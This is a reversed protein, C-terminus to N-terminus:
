GDSGEPNEGLGVLLGEERGVPCGVDCGEDRGVWLGESPTEFRGVPCGVEWGDFYTGNAALTLVGPTPVRDVWIAIMINEDTPAATKHRKM